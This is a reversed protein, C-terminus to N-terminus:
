SEIRDLHAALLTILIPRQHCWGHPDEDHDWEEIQELAVELAFDLDRVAPYGPFTPGREIENALRQTFEDAAKRKAKARKKEERDLDM